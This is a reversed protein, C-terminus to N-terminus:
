GAMQAEAAPRSGYGQVRGAFATFRRDFHFDQKEVSAIRVLSGTPTEHVRVWMRRHRLGFTVFMGAVMLASAVWVWIAGPDHHVAIGTFQRERDFTYTYEGIQAAEGQSVVDMGIPETQGTPYVEFQLEGPALFSGTEGSAATVTLVDVGADPLDVRGISNLEDDSSWQMPVGGRHVTNGEADEITIEAAIGFYSQHFRVGDYRIPDNVRVEQRAVQADNEYVVLDAVYDSPRGDTYYEDAFSLAEVELDTGHGVPVRSGVTIPLNENYGFLSTVLVGVIILVFGLHAAVTGFPGWRNQDAYYSHGPGSEDRLVRFRAKRLDGTVLRAAEQAPLNVPVAARQRAHDFFRETVHTKPHVARQWLQPLRHLTCAIISLALMLSVAVFPLSSYVHFLGLADLISTWGGYRPAMTELWSSYAQPDERLGPPAQAIITGLLTLVAMALIILLGVTKNYFFRYVAGAAGRVGGRGRRATSAGPRPGPSGPTPTSPDAPSLTQTTSM